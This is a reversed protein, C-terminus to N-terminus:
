EVLTQPKTESATLSTFLVQDTEEKLELCNEVNEILGFFENLLIEEEKLSNELELEIRSVDSSLERSTKEWTNKKNLADEKKSSIEGRAQVLERSLKEISVLEQDMRDFDEDLKQLFNQRRERLSERSLSGTTTENEANGQPEELESQHAIGHLLSNYDLKIRKEDQKLQELNLQIKALNQDYIEINRTLTELNEMNSKVQRGCEALDAELSEGIKEKFQLVKNFTEVVRTFERAAASGKERALTNRQGIDTNYRYRNM